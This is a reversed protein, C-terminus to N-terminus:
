SRFRGRQNVQAVVRDYASPVPDTPDIVGPTNANSVDIAGPTAVYGMFTVSRGRTSLNPALEPKSSFSTV